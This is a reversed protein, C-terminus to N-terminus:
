NNYNVVTWGSPIGDAGTTWSSMSSAKTFTGTAAVGNVWNGTCGNASISTALCTVKSLSTCGWFMAGYCNRVLTEASLIPAQTLSICNRFMSGYCQEELNMAPLVPVETLSTCGRFMNAYCSHGLYLSPLEPTTVLSTCDLFMGYYVGFSWRTHSDNIAPLVRPAYVLNTCGSFIYEYCYQDLSQAPLILGSADTLGTCGEFLRSYTWGSVSGYNGISEYDILSQINGEVTFGATTGTVGSTAGRFLWQCEYNTHTGNSTKGKFSVIDGEEVEIGSTPATVYSAGNLSYWLTYGSSPRVGIIGDQTIRMTLPEGYYDVEQNIIIDYEVYSGNDDEYWIPLDYQPLYLNNEDVTFTLVWTDDATQEVDTFRAHGNMPYSWYLNTKVTTQGTGGSVPFDFTNPTVIFYSPASYSHEYETEGSNYMTWFAKMRSDLHGNVPQSMNYGSQGTWSDTYDKLFKWNILEAGNSDCVSFLGAGNESVVDDYLGRFDGLSNYLYDSCIDNIQIVPGDENPGCFAKGNYITNGDYAISYIFISDGSSQYYTDRWIPAYMIVGSGQYIFLYSSYTDSNRDTGTFYLITRRQNGTNPDLTIVYDVRLDGNVDTASSSAASAWSETSTVACVGSVPTNEYTASVEITGGTFSASESINSNVIIM